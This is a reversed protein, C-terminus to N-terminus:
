EEMGGGGGGGGGGGSDEDAAGECRECVTSAPISKQKAIDAESLKLYMLM